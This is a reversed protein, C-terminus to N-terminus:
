GGAIAGIILLPERGTVVEDPLRADPAANSFDDQCAYFRVLPNRLGSGRNRILGTLDPHAAELADLVSGLTVPPAVPVAIESACRAHTHLHYPLIVRIAPM